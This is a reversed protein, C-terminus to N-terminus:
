ANEAQKRVFDFSIQHYNSKSTPVLGVSVSVFDFKHKRRSPTEAWHHVLNCLCFTVKWANMSFILIHFLCFYSPCACPFQYYFTSPTKTKNFKISHFTIKAGSCTELAFIWILISSLNCTECNKWSSLSRGHQSPCKGGTRSPTRCPSATWRGVWAPCSPSSVDALSINKLSSVCSFSSSRTSQTLSYCM